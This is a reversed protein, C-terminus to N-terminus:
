YFPELVDSDAYLYFLKIEFPGRGYVYFQQKVRECARGM